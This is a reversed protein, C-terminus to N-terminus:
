TRLNGAQDSHPFPANVLNSGHGVDYELESLPRPAVDRGRHDEPGRHHGHHEEQDLRTECRV